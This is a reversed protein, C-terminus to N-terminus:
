RKLKYGIGRMTEIRDALSAGLKSRLRRIHIDVTRTAVGGSYGWVKQLIEERSVARGLNDALFVLLEFEQPTFSIIRGALTVERGVRDIILDGFRLQDGDRVASTKWDIQRIRAYVEAPVFPRLVFDSYGMSFDLATLRAVSVVLLAPVAGLTESAALAEVAFRAAGMDGRPDVIVVQYALESAARWDAHTLNAETVECGLGALLGSVSEEPASGDADISGHAGGGNPSTSNAENILVLVHM